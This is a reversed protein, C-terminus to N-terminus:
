TGVGYSDFGEATACPIVDVFDVHDVTVEIGHKAGRQKDFPDFWEEYAPVFHSWQLIKLTKDAAGGGRTLV